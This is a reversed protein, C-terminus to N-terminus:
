PYNNLKLIRDIEEKAQLAWYGNPDLELYFAFLRKALELLGLAHFALGLNYFAGTYDPDRSYERLIAEIAEEARGQKIIEQFKLCRSMASPVISNRGKGLRIGRVQSAGIKGGICCNTLTQNYFIIAPLLFPFQPSFGQSSTM